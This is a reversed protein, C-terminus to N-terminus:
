PRVDSNVSKRSRLQILRHLLYVLMLAAGFLISLLFSLGASIIVAVTVVLSIIIYAAPLYPYGWSKYPMKDGYRKRFVFVTSITMMALIIMITGTLTLLFNFSGTIILMSCWVAQLILALKPTKYKKHLQGAKSTFFGDKAMAYYIRAGAMITVNISGLIAFTILVKLVVGGVAGFLMDAVAAVAAVDQISRLSELSIVKIYIVNLLIYLSTAIVVAAIASRPITKRPNKVEAGVYTLVNWGTYTFFVAVFAATFGLFGASGPAAAAAAQQEPMPGPTIMLSVIGGIAIIAIPVLTLGAQLRGSFLLGRYNIMTFMWVMLLAIITSPSITLFPLEITPIFSLGLTAPDIIRTLGIAIVAISGSFSAIFAMWGYAYGWMPGYAERLFVYDGGAKPFLVGLEAIILAGMLAFAGGLIWIGFYQWIDTTNQAVISPTLFIGVGLINGLVIALALGTGIKRLNTKKEEM